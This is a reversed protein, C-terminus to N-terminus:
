TLANIVAIQDILNPVALGASAVEFKTVAGRDDNYQRVHFEGSQLVYIDNRKVPVGAYRLEFSPSEPFVM